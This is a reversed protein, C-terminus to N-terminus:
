SWSFFSIGFFHDWRQPAMHTVLQPKAKKALVDALLNKLAELNWARKQELAEALYLISCFLRGRWQHGGKLGCIESRTVVVINRDCKARVALKMDDLSVDVGQPRVKERAACHDAYHGGQIRWYLKITVRYTARCLCMYKEKKLIDHEHEVLDCSSWVYAERSWSCRAHGFGRALVKLCYHLALGERSLSLPLPLSTWMNFIELHNGNGVSKLDVLYLPQWWAAQTAFGGSWQLNQYKPPQKFWVACSNQQM